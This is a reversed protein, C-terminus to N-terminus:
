DCSIVGSDGQRYGELGEGFKPTKNDVKCASFISKKKQRVKKM